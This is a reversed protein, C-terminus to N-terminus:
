FNNSINFMIKLLEKVIMVIFLILFQYTKVLKFDMQNILQLKLSKKKNKKM